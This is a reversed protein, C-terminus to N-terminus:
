KIDIKYLYNSPKEKMFNLEFLGGTRWTELLSDYNPSGPNGSAGGPYVGYGKVEPGLEVVMRWSPGNGGRTANVSESGGGAFVNQAGFGPIAALHDIDNNVFYGWKWKENEEGLANEIASITKKFAYTVRENLTEVQETNIDDIFEYDPESKLVETIRDRPPFRLIAKTTAYEDDFIADELNRWWTRFISPAVKEADNYFDWEEVLKLKELESENLSDEQIWELM